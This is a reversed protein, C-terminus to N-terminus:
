SLPMPAKRRVKTSLQRVSIRGEDFQVPANHRLSSKGFEIKDTQYIKASVVEFKLFRHFQRVSDIAPM